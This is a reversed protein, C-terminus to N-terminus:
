GFSGRSDLSSGECTEILTKFAQVPNMSKGSLLNMMVRGGKLITYAM